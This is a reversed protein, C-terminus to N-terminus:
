QVHVAEKDFQVKLLTQTDPKLNLSCRLTKNGRSFELYHFGKSLEFADLQGSPGLQRGDARVNCWPVSWVRIRAPQQGVAASVAGASLSTAVASPAAVKPSVQKTIVPLPKAPLSPEAAMLPAEVSRHETDLSKAPKAKSPVDQVTKKRGAESTAVASQAVAKPSVQKKIPPLPKAPLSSEAESFSTEVSAQEIDLSKLPRAKSPTDPITQKHGVKSVVVQRPRGGIGAFPRACSSLCSSVRSAMSLAGLILCLIMFAKPLPFSSLIALWAQGPNMAATRPGAAPVQSRRNQTPTKTAPKPNFPTNKVTELAAKLHELKDAARHRIEPSLGTHIKAQLRARQAAYARELAAGSSPANIGLINYAETQTM